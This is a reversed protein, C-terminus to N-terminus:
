QLRVRRESFIKISYVTGYLQEWNLFVDGSSCDSLFSISIAPYSGMYGSKFGNLIDKAISLSGQRVKPVVIAGRAAADRKMKIDDWLQEVLIMVPQLVVSVFVNGTKSLPYLNLM